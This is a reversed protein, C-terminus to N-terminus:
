IQKNEYERNLRDEIDQTVQSNVIQSYRVERIAFGCSCTILGKQQFSSYSFDKDCKPCKNQKLNIWKM